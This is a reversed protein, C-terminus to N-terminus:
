LEDRVRDMLTYRHESPMLNKFISKVTTVEQNPNSRGQIEMFKEQAQKELADPDHGQNRLQEQLPIHFHVM